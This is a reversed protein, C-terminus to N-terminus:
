RVINAVASPMASSQEQIIQQWEQAATSLLQSVRSVEPLLGAVIAAQLDRQRGEIWEQMEEDCQPVFDERRCVRKPNPDTHPRGDEKEKSLQEGEASMDVAVVPSQPRELEDRLTALRQEGEVVEASLWTLETQAQLVLERAAAGRKRAWTLNEM